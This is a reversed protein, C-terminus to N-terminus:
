PTRSTSRASGSAARSPHRRESSGSIQIFGDPDISGVDGTRLWGDHFKEESPDLYYLRHDVPGAGEIEGTSEGDWPQEEGADNCIRIEVGQMVRGTRQRYVMQDAPDDVWRPARAQAAMPSTETMGWAQVVPVGFTADYGAMVVAAGGLRRLDDVEALQPRRRRPQPACRRAGHARCGPSPQDTAEIIEALPAAQLYQQPMVIDAGVSWCVYPLGWANAHFM